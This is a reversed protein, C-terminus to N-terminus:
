LNTPRNTFYKAIKTGSQVLQSWEFIFKVKPMKMKLARYAETGLYQFKFITGPAFQLLQM